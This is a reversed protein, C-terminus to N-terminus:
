RERRKTRRTIQSQDRDLLLKEGKSKITNKKNELSKTSRTSWKTSEIQHIM